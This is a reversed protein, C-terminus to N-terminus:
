SYLISLRKIGGLYALLSAILQCIYNPIYIKLSLNCDYLIIYKDFHM